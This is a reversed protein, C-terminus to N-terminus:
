KGDQRQRRVVSEQTGEGKCSTLRHHIPTISSPMSCVNLWDGSSLAGERAPQHSRARPARARLASLEEARHSAERGLPQQLPRRPALEFLVGGFITRSKEISQVYPRRVTKIPFSPTPHTARVQLSAAGVAAPGNRRSNGQVAAGKGFDRDALRLCTSRDRDEKTRARRSWLCSWDSPYRSPELMLKFGSPGPLKGMHGDLCAPHRVYRAVGTCSPAGRKRGM